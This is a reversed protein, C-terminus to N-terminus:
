YEVDFTKSFSDVEEGNIKTKTIKFGQKTLLARLKDNLVASGSLTVTRAAATRGATMAGEYIAKITGLKGKMGEPNYAAFINVALNDGRKAFGAAVEAGNALTGHFLDGWQQAGKLGFSEAASAASFTPMGPPAVAEIGMETMRRGFPTALGLYASYVLNRAFSWATSAAYGAGSGAGVLGGSMLATSAVLLRPDASSTEKFRCPGGSLSQCKEGDADVAALPNNRVYGYLNWSQPDEAHQDAFPADPSTFRGQAASLYRAGFYDLGTEADREKGTFQM